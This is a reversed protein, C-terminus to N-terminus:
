TDPLSFHTVGREKQLECSKEENFTTTCFAFSLLLSLSLSELAGEAYPIEFYFNGTPKKL